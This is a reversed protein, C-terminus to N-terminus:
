DGGAKPKPAEESKRIIEDIESKLLDWPPTNTDIIVTQRDKLKRIADLKRLFIALEENQQFAKFADMAAADGEARIGTAKAEADSIKVQRDHDAKARIIEADRNGESRLRKAEREREARMRKFVDETVKEPLGLETIRVFHMHIGYKALATQEVAEKIEKEIEDFALKEPDISVFDSFDHRGIVSNARGGVLGELQRTATAVTQLSVRFEEADAISWGMALTVIINRRDKTYAEQYKALEAKTINTRTDFKEVTQIPFPLRFYLGPEKLVRETKGFTFVIAHENVRVQFSILFTILIGVLILAVIISFIGRRRM